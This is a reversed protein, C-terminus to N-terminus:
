DQSSADGPKYPFYSPCDVEQLPFHVEAELAWQLLQEGRGTCSLTTSGLNGGPQLLTENADLGILVRACQMSPSNGWDSLAEATQAISFRHSIHGSILGLNKGDHGRLVTCFAARCIRTSEHHGLVKLFAIGCGRWESERKGHLLMWSENFDFLPGEGSTTIEQLFVVELRSLEPTGRFGSLLDLAKEPNLGGLNWTAVHLHTAEDQRRAATPTPGTHADASCM